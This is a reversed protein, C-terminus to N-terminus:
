RGGMLDNLREERAEHLLDVSTLKREGYRAYIKAGFADAWELWEEPSMPEPVTDEHEMQLLVRQRAAKDLQRFKKIVEQELANM